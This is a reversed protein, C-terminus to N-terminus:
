KCRHVTVSYPSVNKYDFLKVAGLRHSYQYQGTINDIDMDVLRERVRDMKKLKVRFILDIIM